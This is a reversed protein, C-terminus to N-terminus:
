LSIAGIKKILLEGTVYTEEIGAEGNRITFLNTSKEYTIIMDRSYLVPSGQNIQNATTGLLASDNYWYIGSYVMFYNNGSTARYQVAYIAGNEFAFSGDAPFSTQGETVELRLFGVNTSGSGVDLSLSEHAEDYTEELALNELETNINTIDQTNKTINNAMGVAESGHTEIYSQMDKFTDVVGAVGDGEVLAKIETTVKSTVTQVTAVKNNDADYTGDVAINVSKKGDTSIALKTNNVHIEDIKGVGEQVTQELTDLRSRANADKIEYGNIKSIFAM